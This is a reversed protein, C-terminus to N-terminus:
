AAAQEDGVVTLAAPPDMRKRIDQLRWITSRYSKARETHESAERDCYRALSELSAIEEDLATKASEFDTIPEIAM